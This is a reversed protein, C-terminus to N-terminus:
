ESRFYEFCVCTNHCTVGFFANCCVCWLYGFCVCACGVFMVFWFYCVFMMLYVNFVLVYFILVFGVFLVCKCMNDNCLIYTFMADCRTNKVVYTAVVGKAFFSLTCNAGHVTCVASKCFFPFHLTCRPRHLRCKQLFMFLAFHVTSPASQM